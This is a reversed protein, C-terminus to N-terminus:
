DGFSWDHVAGKAEPHVAIALHEGVLDDHFSLLIVKEMSIVSDYITDDSETWTSGEQDEENYTNKQLERPYLGLKATNVLIIEEKFEAIEKDSFVTLLGICAM